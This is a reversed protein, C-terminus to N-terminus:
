IVKLKLSQEVLRVLLRSVWSLVKLSIPMWILRYVWSIVQIIQLKILNNQLLVQLLVKVTIVSSQPAEGSGTLNEPDLEKDKLYTAV